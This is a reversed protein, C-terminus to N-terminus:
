SYFEYRDKSKEKARYMARDAYSLLMDPTTTDHPYVSIGISTTIYLTHGQIYFPERLIHLIKDAINQAETTLHINEILVTFEDGGLRSVTDGKRVSNKIRKATEILVEDGASHGITDNIEKFHDLDIFLISHLMGEVHRKNLLVKLRDMFLARNALGTLNDYNASIKLQKERKKRDNIDRAIGLIGIIEGRENKMPTKITEFHGEHSGDAFTLYEENVRSSGRKLALQDNNRFFIALKEDVFDFDTHGIIESESAGYFQEFKTNCKLYVGDLDKLWVIDPLIDFIAHLFNKQEILQKQLLKTDSLDIDICYMESLTDTVRVLSHNSYVHVPNGNKAKLTLESAEIPIDKDVWDQVSKHVLKKDQEPIILDELKNGLAEEKSYGYLCHSGKNWYIVEHDQNYGQVSISESDEIIEQFINKQHELLSVTKSLQDQLRKQFSTDTYFAAINGNDLKYIENKRWGSIRNDEYFSSEFTESIGTEHVRVLVDFLGYEKITPFVETLKKNILSKKDVTETLEAQKNFDVFVFNDDVKKYIAVNIPLNDINIMSSTM